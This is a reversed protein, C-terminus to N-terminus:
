IPWALRDISSCVHPSNACSSVYLASPHRYTQPARRDRMYRASKCCTRPQEPKICRSLLPLLIRNLHGSQPLSRLLLTLAAFFMNALADACGDREAPSDTMAPRALISVDVGSIDPTRGSFRTPAYHREALLTRCLRPHNTTFLLLFTLTRKLHGIATILEVSANVCSLVYQRSSQSLRNERPLIQCRLVHWYPFTVASTDASLFEKIFTSYDLFKRAPSVRCDQEYKRQPVLQERERRVRFAIGRLAPIDGLARLYIGRAGNYDRDMREGDQAVVM